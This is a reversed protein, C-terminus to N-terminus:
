GHTRTRCAAQRAAHLPLVRQRQPQLPLLPLLALGLLLAGVVVVAARGPLALLLPLGEAGLDAGRECPVVVLVVVLVVV